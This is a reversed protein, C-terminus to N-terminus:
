GGYAGDDLRRAIWEFRGATTAVQQSLARISEHNEEAIVTRHRALDRGIQARHHDGAATLRDLATVLAAQHSEAESGARDVREVLARLEAALRQQEKALRRQEVRAAVLLLLCAMVLLVVLALVTQGEVLALVVGAGAIAGAGGLLVRSRPGLRSLTRLRM